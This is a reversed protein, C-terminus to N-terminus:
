LMKLHNVLHQNICPPTNEIMNGKNNVLFIIFSWLIFFKNTKLKRISKFWACLLYVIVRYYTQVEIEIVWWGFSFCIIFFFFVVFCQIYSFTLYLSSVFVLTHVFSHIHATNCLFHLCFILVRKVTNSNHFPVIGGWETPCCCFANYM